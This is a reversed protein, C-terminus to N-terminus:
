GYVTGRSKVDDLLARREENLRAYASLATAEFLQRHQPEREYLLRGGDIIQVRLVTSAARLDVLAVSVHLEAALSEQLDFRFVPELPSAALLAIDVDSDKSQQGRARSGFLYIAEVEPVAARIREVVTREM